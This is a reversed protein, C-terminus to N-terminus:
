NELLNDRRELAVQGLAGMVSNLQDQRATIDNRASETAAAAQRTEKATELLLTPLWKVACDHMDLDAGSQPHKGRIHTWWACQQKICPNGLLPCTDLPYERKFMM